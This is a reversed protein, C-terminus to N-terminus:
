IRNRLMAVHLRLNDRRRNWNCRACGGYWACSAGLKSPTHEKPQEVFVFPLTASPAQFRPRLCLTEPWMNGGYFALFDARIM